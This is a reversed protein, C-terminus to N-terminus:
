SRYEVLKDTASDIIDTKYLHFPSNISNLIDLNSQVQMASMLLNLLM